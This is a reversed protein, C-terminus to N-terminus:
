SGQLPSNAPVRQGGVVEGALHYLDGLLLASVDGDLPIVELAPHPTKKARFVDRLRISIGQIKM